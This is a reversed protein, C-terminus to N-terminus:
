NQKKTTSAQAQGRLEAAEIEAHRRVEQENELKARLAEIEDQLKPLSELRLEALAAAKRATEAAERERTIQEKVDTLDRQLQEIMGAQRGIETSQEDAHREAKQLASAQQETEEALTDRDSKLDALETELRSRAEAVNREIEFLIVRQIETPLTVSATEIQRRGAQGDALHKQITGLSGTGLEARVGRLTPREARATIRDAAAAVEDFTVGLRGPISTM